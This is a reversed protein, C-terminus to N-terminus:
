KSITGDNAVTVGWQDKVVSTPTSQIGSAVIEISLYYQTNDAGVPATVGDNLKAENILIETLKGPAVSKNYYYYGDSGLSWGNNLDYTIRYECAGSTCNAGHTCAVPKQAWVRTGTADAWNVVVAVRIYADTDGTNKIRVNTKTDGTNANSGVVPTGGNEIVATTVVSPQFVNEVPDTNMFVYALTGGVTCLLVLALAVAAITRRKGKGFSSVSFKKNNNM